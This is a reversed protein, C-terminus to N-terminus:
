RQLVIAEPLLAVVFALGSLLERPSKSLAAVAGRDIGNWIEMCGLM